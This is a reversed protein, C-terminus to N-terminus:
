RPGTDSRVQEVVERIADAVLEPEDHQIYHGSQKAMVQRGKSSLESLETHLELWVKRVDARLEDTMWPPRPGRSDDGATLVILPLDDLSGTLRAQAMSEEIAGMEDVVAATSRSQFAIYPALEEETAWKPAGFGTVWLMFRQAGCAVAAKILQRLAPPPPGALERMKLPMRSMQDPHSSDVFVMGAVDSPYEQRFVRAHPGGVSHGALVLPGDVGAAQLLGHLEEAIRRSNRPEPGPESWMIGARDYSCVRTFKAVEPQVLLWGLSGMADLGSEFVVAPSGEGTCQIHLSHGGIDLLRGPPPHDAAALGQATQEYVFGVVALAVVGCVGVLVLRKTWKWLKTRIRVTKEPPAARSEAGM